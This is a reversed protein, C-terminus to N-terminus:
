ASHIAEKPNIQDQDVSNALSLNTQITVSLAAHIPRKVFCEFLRLMQQFLTKNQNQFGIQSRTSFAYSLSLCTAQFQCKYLIAFFCFCFFFFVCFVVVVFFLVFFLFLFFQPGLDESSM